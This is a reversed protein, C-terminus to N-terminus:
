DTDESDRFGAMPPTGDASGEEDANAKEKERLSEFFRLIWGKLEKKEQLVVEAAIDEWDGYIGNPRREASARAFNAMREGSSGIHARLRDCNAVIRPEISNQIEFIVDELLAVDNPDLSHRGADNTVGFRYFFERLWKPSNEPFIADFYSTGDDMSHSICKTVDDLYPVLWKELGRMHIDNLLNPKQIALFLKNSEDENEEDGFKMEVFMNAVQEQTIPIIEPKGLWFFDHAAYEYQDATVVRIDFEGRYSYAVMIYKDSM